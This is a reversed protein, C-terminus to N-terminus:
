KVDRMYEGDKVVVAWMGRHGAKQTAFYRHHGDLINYRDGDPKVVIPPTKTPDKKISDVLGNDPEKIESPHLREMDIYRHDWAKIKVNGCMKVAKDFDEPTPKAPLSDLDSFKAGHIRRLKEELHSVSGHDTKKDYGNEHYHSIMGGGQTPHGAAITHGTKPNYHVEHGGERSFGVQKYGYKKAVDGVASFKARFSERKAKDVSANRQQIENHEEVPPTAGSKENLKKNIAGQVFDKTIADRYEQGILPFSGPGHEKRVSTHAHYFGHQLKVVAEHAKVPDQTSLAGHLDALGERAKTLEGPTAGEHKMLKIAQQIARGHHQLNQIGGAHLADLAKRTANYGMMTHFGIAHLKQPDRMPEGGVGSMVQQRIQDQPSVEEPPTDGSGPDEKKGGPIKEFKGQERPHKNNDFPKNPM